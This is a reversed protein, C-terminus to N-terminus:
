AKTTHAQKLAVYVKYGYVISYLSWVASIVVTVIDAVITSGYSILVSIIESVFSVGISIALIVLMRIIIPWFYGDVYKRSQKLSEVPSLNEVVVIYRAMGYWVSFIIAPIILLLFGGLVILALLVTVGLMAWIHGKTKKYADITTITEGEPLSLVFIIAAYAWSFFFLCAAILVVGLIVAALSFFGAYAIGVFAIGFVIAALAFAPAGALAAILVLRKWRAKLITWSEILLQKPSTLKVLTGTAPALVTDPTNNEM